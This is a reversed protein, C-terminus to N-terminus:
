SEDDVMRAAVGFIIGVGFCLVLNNAAYMGAGSISVGTLIM